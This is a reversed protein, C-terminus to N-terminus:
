EHGAAWGSLIADARLLAETDIMCDLSDHPSCDKLCHEAEPGGSKFAHVTKDLDAPVCNKSSNCTQSM